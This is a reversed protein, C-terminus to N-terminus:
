SIFFFFSESLELTELLVIHVLSSGLVTTPSGSICYLLDLGFSMPLHSGRMVLWPRAPGQSGASHESGPGLRPLSSPLHLLRERGKM